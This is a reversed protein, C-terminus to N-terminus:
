PSGRTNPTETKTMTATARNLLQSVPNRFVMERRRPMPNPVRRIPTKPRISKVPTLSAMQNERGRGIRGPRGRNEREDVM